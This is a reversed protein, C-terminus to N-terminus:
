TITITVTATGDGMTVTNGSYTASGSTATVTVTKSAAEAAETRTVEYSKNRVLKLVTGDAVTKGDFSVYGDDTGVVVITVDYDYKIEVMIKVTDKSVTFKYIGGSETLATEAGDGDVTKVSKIAAGAAAGADSLKVIVDEGNKFKLSDGNKMTTGAVSVFGNDTGGSIEAKIDTYKAALEVEIKATTDTVVFSLSNSIGATDAKLPNGNADNQLVGADNTVKISTIVAGDNVGLSSLSVAVTEGYNFEKSSGNKMTTGSVDVYGNDTGSSAKVITTLKYAHATADLYVSFGESPMVFSCYYPKSADHNFDAGTATIKADYGSAITYCVYVTKGAEQAEISKTCAPDSYFSLSAVAPDSVYKGITIANEATTIPKLYVNVTVSADPMTFSTDYVTAAADEVLVKEITYKDNVASALQINISDGMGLDNIVCDDVNTIDFLRVAGNIYVQLLGEVGGMVTSDAANRAVVTLKKSGLTFDVSIGVNCEPMKYLWTKSDGDWYIVGYKMDGYNRNVGTKPMNELTYKGDDLARVVTIAKRNFTYPKVAAPVVEVIDGSYCMNTVKFDTGDGKHSVKTQVTGRSGDFYINSLTFATQGKDVLYVTVTTDSEPMYFYYQGSVYTLGGEEGIDGYHKTDTDIKVQKISYKEEGVETLYLFLGEKYGVNKIVTGGAQNEVVPNNTDNQFAVEWLSEGQLEKKDEKGDPKIYVTKLTLTKKVATFETKIDVGDAAMQFYYFDEGDINVDGLVLSAGTRKDTVTIGSKFLKYGPEVNAPIILVYDGANCAAASSSKNKWKTEKSPNEDSPLVKYSITAIDTGTVVAKGINIMDSSFYLNIVVDDKNPMIFYGKTGLDNNLEHQEPDTTTLESKVFTWSDRTEVALAVKAGVAANATVPAKQKIEIAKDADNVNIFAINGESGSIDTRVDNVDISYFKVTIEKDKGILKGKVTVGGAPMTFVAYKNDSADKQIKFSVRNGDANRYIEIGSYDGKKYGPEVEDEIKLAVLEGTTQEKTTMTEPKVKGSDMTAKHATVIGGEIAEITISGDGNTFTLKVYVAQDPMTFTYGVALNDGVTKHKVEDYRRVDVNTLQYGARPQWVINVKTGKAAKSASFGNVQLDFNGNECDERYFNYTAAPKVTATVKVNKGPMKFFGDSNVNVPLKIGLWTSYTVKIDSLTYASDTCVVRVSTGQAASSVSLGEVTTAVYYNNNTEIEIDYGSSIAADVRVDCAPMIFTASDLKLDASGDAHKVTLSNLAKGEETDVVVTVVSGPAANDVSKSDVLFYMSALTTNVNATLKYTKKNTSASTTTTTTTTTTNGNADTTTTSTTTTTPTTSAPPTVTGSTAGTTSITTMIPLYFNQGAKIKSLNSTKNMAQLLKTNKGYSVGYTSCISTATEGSKVPHEIVQYCTTGAAPTVSTPILVQQGAKVKDLSAISNIATIWGEHTALDIGFSNCVSTFTDGRQMVYPIYYCVVNDGSVTATTAASTTTTTAAPTGTPTSTAPKQGMVELAANNSTPLKIVRGVSLYRFQSESSIGNLKMIANRCVYYDIGLAQCLKLVTDGQQMTHEITDNATLAYASSGMGAFLSMVMLM